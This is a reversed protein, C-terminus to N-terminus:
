TAALPDACASVAPAPVRAKFASVSMGTLRAPTLARASASRPLNLMPGLEGFYQGPELIALQEEGGGPRPRYIEITGEEILYVICAPDGQEFLVDGADLLVQESDEEPEAAHPALDIVRDAINTIREDHTAVLVLRGPEALTRILRLTSEVQVYDLHATPEDAIVLPPDHVLARAIAVRQQQGGSLQAPRHGLRDSLGVMGLLSEAREQARRRPVGALRLPARLTGRASLSPILNFAQFVVGVTHRRYAARAQGGLATVERGRFRVTGSKPTLVGALCSLLTTKRSGSPGLVVVLEGDDADFSLGDLPRLVYGGSANFEVTLDRVELEAV